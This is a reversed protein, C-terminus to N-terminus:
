LPRDREDGPRLCDPLRKAAAQCGNMIFYIHSDTVRLMREVGDTERLTRFRHEM